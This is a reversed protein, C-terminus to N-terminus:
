QISSGLLRATIIRLEAGRARGWSLKTQSRPRTQSRAVHLPPMGRLGIIGAV